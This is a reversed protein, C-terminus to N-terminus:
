CLMYRAGRRKYRRLMLMMDEAESSVKGPLSPLLSLLRVRQRESRMVYCQM